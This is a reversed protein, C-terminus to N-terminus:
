HGFRRPEVVGSSGPPPRPPVRPASPPVSIGLDDGARNFFGRATSLLGPAPTPPLQGRVPTVATQVGSRTSAAADAARRAGGAPSGWGLGEDFIGRVASTPAGYEFRGLADTIKRPLATAANVMSRPSVGAMLNGTNGFATGFGGAVDGAEVQERAQTYGPGLLPLGEAIDTSQPLGMASTALRGLDRRSPDVAQRATEIGLGVGPIQGALDIAAGQGHQRIPDVLSRKLADPIKSPNSAMGILGSIMGPLNLPSAEFANNIFRYEPSPQGGGGGAAPPPKSSSAERQEVEREFADFDADTPQGPKNWIFPYTKGSKSTYVPKDQGQAM